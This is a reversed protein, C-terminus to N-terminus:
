VHFLLKKPLQEKTIYFYEYSIRINQYTYKQVLCSTMLGTILVSYISYNVM